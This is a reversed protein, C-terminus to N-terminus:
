TLFLHLCVELTIDFLRLSGNGCGAIVQNRDDAELGSQKPFLPFPFVWEHSENWAVDYVSDQTDFRENAENGM